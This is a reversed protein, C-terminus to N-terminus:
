GGSSGDVYSAVVDELVSLPLSGSGLVVDHFGIVEFTDGLADSADERLGIITQQGIMYATAQGPYSVYREVEHTWSSDSMAEIMYDRAEARTWQHHHIGTDVVLRVARLLELELRGINGYPDNAYLGMEGALREAYLAWGEVYATFITFRRVSPLDLEQALAIQFHHGPVAEHYLTTALTYRSLGLGQIGAHYAGPRSGDASGPIYYGGRGVPEPVLIMEGSPRTSFYNEGERNAIDILEEYMALLEAEREPTDGDLFGGDRRARARLSGLDDDAPYGLHDFAARLESQVREVQAIGLEHIEDGTMKTTTHRRLLYTYYADGDPLAWVGVDDRAEPRIMELYDILANWGSVFGNKIATEARSLLDRKTAQDLEIADLREQFSTYLPLAQPRPASKSSAIGSFGDELTGITWDIVFGPPTIGLSRRIELGELVQDIQRGIQGLRAVYDEADGVTQLPHEDTLFPVLTQNYSTLFYSIPYDHYMFQHGRVRVDLHWEYM